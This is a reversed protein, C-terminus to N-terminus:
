QSEGKLSEYATVANEAITRWSFEEAILKRGNRGMKLYNKKEEIAQLMANSIDSVENKGNWGASYNVIENALNTGETVLCPIGYSLAELVGLPMGEFRSTQIFIDADLLLSEKEKGMVEHHIGIIDSVEAEEILHEVHNYRGLRDPGYIEIHVNEERLKEKIKAVADIMLDLGKHFADLRGIYIFQVKDTNFKEKRKDPIDVGNTILIKKRGFYTEKLEKKSLCQIAVAQRTFRNFLLINALKKKLHKKNQAEKGLEGHPMVIYPIGNECLNRAMQLYDIRYCEHFIVIDPKNFPEPLAMINFPKYYKFQNGQNITIEDIVINKINIFGVTAFEMQALIHQPVAVCVGNFLSNEIAAVHLIVM